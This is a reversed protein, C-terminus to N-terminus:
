EVAAFGGLGPGFSRLPRRLVALGAHLEEKSLESRAKKKHTKLLLVKLGRVSLAAAASPHYLLFCPMM